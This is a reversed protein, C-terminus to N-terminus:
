KLGIFRLCDSMRHEWTYHSNIVRQYGADAISKRLNDNGLYYKIKRLLEEKTDFFVAEVDENFLLGHADTREAIMMTGCAPIEFSRTTYVDNVENSLFCLGIKAGSIAKAYEDGYGWGRDLPGLVKGTRGLNWGRGYLFFKCNIKGIISEIIEARREMYQGAFAIDCSYKEAEVNSLIIPRHIEPDYGQWSFYVSKAGLEKYLPVDRKKTTICIDYQSIANKLFRNLLGASSLPDPTYHVIICSHNRKIESLTKGDILNGQDVWICDPNYRNAEKLIQRGFSSILPLWGIRIKVRDWFSREVYEKIFVRSDFFHLNEVLKRLARMRSLSTTGWGGTGVYLIRM